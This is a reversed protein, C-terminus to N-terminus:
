LVCIKSASLVNLTAPLLPRPCSLTGSASQASGHIRQWGPLGCRRSCQPHERPREMCVGYLPSEAYTLGRCPLSRVTGLPCILFPAPRLGGQSTPRSEGGRGALAAVKTGGRAETGGPVPHHQPRSLTRSNREPAKAGEGPACSSSSHLRCLGSIVLPDLYKDLLGTASHPESQKAILARPFAWDRGWGPLPGEEGGARGERQDDALPATRQLRETLQLSYLTTSKHQALGTPHSCLFSAVGPRELLCIRLSPQAESAKVTCSLATSLLSVEPLSGPPPRLLPETQRRSIARYM